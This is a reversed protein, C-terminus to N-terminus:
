KKDHKAMEATCAAGNATDAAAAASVCAKMAEHKAKKDAAGKVTADEKCTERYAKCAGGKKGEGAFSTSSLLAITAIVLITRM